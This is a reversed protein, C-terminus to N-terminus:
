PKTVLEFSFVVVGYEAEDKPTYFERYKTVVDDVSQATPVAAQFDIAEAAEKITEFYLIQTIRIELAHPLSELVKREYWFDERVSLIDDEQIRLFRPKGLRIEITKDKNKIAEVLTSEIGIEEM